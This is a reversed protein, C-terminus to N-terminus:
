TLIYVNEWPTFVWKFVINFIFLKWTSLCYHLNESHLYHWYQVTLLKYKFSYYLHFIYLFINKFFSNM